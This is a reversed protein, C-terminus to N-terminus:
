SSRPALSILPFDDTESDRVLSLRSGRTLPVLVEGEGVGVRLEQADAEICIPGKWSGKM